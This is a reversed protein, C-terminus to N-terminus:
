GNAVKEPLDRNCGPECLAFAGKLYGKFARSKTFEMPPYGGSCVGGLFGSM